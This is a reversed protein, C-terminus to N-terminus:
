TCTVHMDVRFGSKHAWLKLEQPAWEHPHAIGVLDSGWLQFAPFTYPNEGEILQKMSRYSASNPTTVVFHGKPSLVRNAEIAVHMPDFQLHELTEFCIVVDFSGPPYPWPETEINVKKVDLRLSDAGDTFEQVGTSEIANVQIHQVKFLDWLILPIFEERWPM